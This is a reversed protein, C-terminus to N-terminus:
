LFSDDLIDQEFWVPGFHFREGTEFIIRVDATNTGKDVRVASTDFDADLYGSDAAVTLFKLKGNEYLTHRLPDGAHLPFAAKAALFAPDDKGPGTLTVDITRVHVQVGPDVVYRAILADGDPELSKEIHPQYYGFPQLATEIDDTARVHLRDIRQRTMLGNEAERAIEMIARVNRELEADVGEIEVRVKSQATVRSPLFVVIM